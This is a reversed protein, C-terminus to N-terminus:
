EPARTVIGTESEIYATMNLTTHMADEFMGNQTQKNYKQALGVTHVQNNTRLGDRVVAGNVLGLAGVISLKRLM